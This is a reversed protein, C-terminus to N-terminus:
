GEDEVDIMAALARRGSEAEAADEATEAM